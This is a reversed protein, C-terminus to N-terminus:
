LAKALRRMVGEVAKAMSKRAVQISVVGVRLRQGRQRRGAMYDCIQEVALKPEEAETFLLQRQKNLILGKTNGDEFQLAIVCGQDRRKM